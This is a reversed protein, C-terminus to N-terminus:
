GEVATEELRSGLAVVLDAEQWLAATAPPAYLGAVGCFRPHNEDVTGRGSATVMIAAGIREAFREVIRDQNRHRMGGGVLLVPARSQRLLTPAAVLTSRASASVPHPGPIRATPQTGVAAPVEVYVPGPSDSTAILTAKALVGALLDAREVRAAWKVVSRVLSLQDLEQFAGTGVRPTDTGTALLVVPVRGTAAEVLGTVANAVAPGRGVVCFGPQGTALAHGTAMFVANRQDRCLVMRVPEAALAGLLSVDDDPLGFVVEAGVAALSRAVVQWGTRPGSM